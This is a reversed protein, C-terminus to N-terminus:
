RGLTTTDRIVARRAQLDGMVAGVESEPVVVETTMIPRLALGGAQSIAKRAAEAVAVRLAQPSSLAGFLEVELVRVALDQLPAGTAPGSALADDAGGAVADRQAPNLGAGEPRLLPESTVM